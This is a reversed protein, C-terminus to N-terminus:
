PCPLRRQQPKAPRTGKAPKRGKAILVEKRVKRKQCDEHWRKFSAESQRALYQHRAKVRNPTRPTDSLGQRHALWAPTPKKFPLEQQRAEQRFLDITARDRVARNASALRNHIADQRSPSM